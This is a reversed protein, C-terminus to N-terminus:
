KDPNKLGTKKYVSAFYSTPFDNHKFRQKTRKNQTHHSIWCLRSVQLLVFSSYCAPRSRQFLENIFLPPRIKVRQSVISVIKNV